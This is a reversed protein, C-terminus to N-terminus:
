HDTAANLGQQLVVVEVLLISWRVAQDTAIGGLTTPGILVLLLVQQLRVGAVLLSSFPEGGMDLDLQTGLQTWEKPGRKLLELPDLEHIM